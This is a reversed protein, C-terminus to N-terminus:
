NGWEGQRTPGDTPLDTPLDCKQIGLPKQMVAGAWGDAVPNGHIRGQKLHLRDVAIHVLHYLLLWLQNNRTGRCISLIGM